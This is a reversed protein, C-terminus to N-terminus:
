RLANRMIKGSSTKPLEDLVEVTRPYKYAAMRAKCYEILAESSINTGSKLSVYAKVSEGRYDDKIGIVAAERVGPHSYLVDEVERPWVKFGSAIIVDKMRDVLFLWGEDDLYGVDGTRLFGSLFAAQSERTRGWYGRMLQPGRIVIEGVQGPPLVQGAEDVIHVETDAVPKGVSLVDQADCAPHLDRPVAVAISTSETLGYVGRILRGFRGAYAQVVSRPIPAGGSYVHQLTQLQQATVEPCNLLAIFATIAGIAFTVHHRHVARAFLEPDFRGILVLSGACALAVGIHLVLGTVHCLPAMGIISAHEELGVHVRFGVSNFVFAAHSHEVGKPMGTTGSTYVITATNDASLMPSLPRQGQWATFVGPMCVVVPTQEGQAPESREESLVVLVDQLLLPLQCVVQQYLDNGCVLVAPKCDDMLLTLERAKNMPNITVAIAGLKWTAILAIMFEPINQLYLAVRDGFQVGNQQLYAALADARQDVQAYSLQEDFYHLAPRGPARDRAAEFMELATGYHGTDAPESCTVLQASSEEIRPDVM